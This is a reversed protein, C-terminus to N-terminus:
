CKMCRPLGLRLHSFSISISRRITHLLHTSQISRAWSLFLHWTNTVKPYWL